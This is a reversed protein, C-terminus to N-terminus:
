ATRVLKWTVSVMKRLPLAAFTEKNKPNLADYVLIVAHATTMDVMLGNIRSCTKTEVVERIRDILPVDRSLHPMHRVADALDSREFDERDVPIKAM